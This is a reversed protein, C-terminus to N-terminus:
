RRRIRYRGQFRRHVSQEVLRHRVAEREQNEATEWKCEALLRSSELHALLVPLIDESHGADSREVEVELRVELSDKPASVVAVLLPSPSADQTRIPSNEPFHRFVAVRPCIIM